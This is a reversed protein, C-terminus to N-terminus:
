APQAAVAHTTYHRKGLLSAAFPTAAQAKREGQDITSLRAWFTPTLNLRCHLETHLAALLDTHQLRHALLSQKLRGFVRPLTYFCAITHM